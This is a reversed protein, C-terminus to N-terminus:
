ISSKEVSWPYHGKIQIHRILNHFWEPAKPHTVVAGFLENINVRVYLGASDFNNMGVGSVEEVTLTCGLPDLCAPTRINMTTLRFEREHEFQRIDKLFARHHAQHAMHHQMDFTSHDVYEVPGIFSFDSPLFTSTWLRRITSRVVVSENSQGYTEWMQPTESDGLYWCNALTLSKGDVVNREHWGDIQALLAPDSFVQKWPEDSDKMSALTPGPITGELEDSLFCLRQFWLAKYSVLSIFKPFTLYRWVVNDLEEERINYLQARWTM